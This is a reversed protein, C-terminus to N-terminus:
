VALGCLLHTMTRLFLKSIIKTKKIKAKTCTKLQVKLTTNKCRKQLSKQSKCGSVEGGQQYFLYNLYIVRNINSHATYITPTM